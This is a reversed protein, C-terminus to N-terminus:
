MILMIHHLFVIYRFNCVNYRIYVNNDVSCVGGCVSVSLLKHMKGFFPCVLVLTGMDATGLTVVITCVGVIRGSMQRSPSHTTPEKKAVRM